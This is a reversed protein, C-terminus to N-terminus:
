SGTNSELICRTLRLEGAVGGGGFTGDPHTSGTGGTFTFGRVIPQSPAGRLTVGSTNLGTADITTSGPGWVGVIEISKGLTDIAEADIGPEVLVRDGNAAAAIATQISQGTTVLPDAAHATSAVLVTAGLALNMFSKM